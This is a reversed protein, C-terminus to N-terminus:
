FEFALNLSPHSTIQLCSGEWLSAHLGLSIISFWGVGHKVTRYRHVQGQSKIQHSTSISRKM